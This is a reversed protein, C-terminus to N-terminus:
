LVGNQGGTDFNNAIANVDATAVVGAADTVTARFAAIRESEAPVSNATFRTATTSPSTITWTGVTAGVQSWMVTYPGRGGRITVQTESTQVNRPTTSSTAGYVDGSISVQLPSSTALVASLSGFQNVRIDAIDTVGSGDNFVASAIASGHIKM